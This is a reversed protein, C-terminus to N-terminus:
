AGGYYSGSTQRDPPAALLPMLLAMLLRPAVSCLVAPAASMAVRAAKAVIHNTM